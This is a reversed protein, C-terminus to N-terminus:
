DDTNDPEPTPDGLDEAEKTPIAHGTNKYLFELPDPQQNDSPM